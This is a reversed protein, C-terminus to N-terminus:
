LYFECLRRALDYPLNLTTNLRPIHYRAMIVTRVCSTLQFEPHYAYRPSEIIAVLMDGFASFEGNPYQTIAFGPSIWKWKGILIEHIWKPHSICLTACVGQENVITEKVHGIVITGLFMFTVDRRVTRCLDQWKSRRLRPGKYEPDDEAFESAPCVVGTITIM